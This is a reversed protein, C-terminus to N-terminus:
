YEGGSGGGGFDGGGFDGGGGSEGGGSSSDGSGGLDGGGSSDVSGHHGANTDPGGSWGDHASHHHAHGHHHADFLGFAHDHDRGSPSPQAHHGSDDYADYADSWCGHTMASVQFRMAAYDCTEGREQHLLDFDERTLLDACAYCLYDVNVRAHSAASRIEEPTYTLKKGSCRILEPRLREVSKLFNVFVVSLGALLGVALPRKYPRSARARGPQSVGRCSARRGLAM